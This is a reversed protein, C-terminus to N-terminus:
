DTFFLGMGASANEEEDKFRRYLKESESPALKTGVDKLLTEARSIAEAAGELLVYLEGSPGGASAADRVLQSQRSLQDDKLVADLEGKKAAVVQYLTWPM